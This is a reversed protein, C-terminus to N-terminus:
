IREQIEDFREDMKADEELRRGIKLKKNCRKDKILPM